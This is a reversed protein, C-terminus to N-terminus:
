DGRRVLELWAYGGGVIRVDEGDFVAASGELRSGEMSM